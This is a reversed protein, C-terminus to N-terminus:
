QLWSPLHSACAKRRQLGLTKDTLQDAFCSAHVARLYARRSTQRGPFPCCVNSVVAVAAADAAPLSAACGATVLSSSFQSLNSVSALFASFVCSSCGPLFIVLVHTAGKCAWPGTRSSTLLVAPMCLESTHVGAPKSALSHVACM